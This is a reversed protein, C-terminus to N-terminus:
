RTDFHNSMLLYGAVASIDDPDNIQEGGDSILWVAPKQALVSLPAILLLAAAVLSKVGRNM